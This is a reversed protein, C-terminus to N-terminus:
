CSTISSSEISNLRPDVANHRRANSNTIELFSHKNKGLWIHLYHGHQVHTSDERETRLWEIIQDSQFSHFPDFQFTISWLHELQNLIIKMDNTIRHNDYELSKIQLYKVHFPIM